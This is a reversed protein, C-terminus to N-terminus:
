RGRFASPLRGYRRKFARRFTQPNSYGCELAVANIAKGNDSRLLTVAKELRYEELYDAFTRGIRTLMFHYIYNEKMGLDVAARSLNLSPDPYNEEIYATITDATHKEVEKKSETKNGALTLFFLRAGDFSTFVAPVRECGRKISYRAATLHLRSLLRDTNEASLSQRVCNENRILDIIRETEKLDASTVASLLAKEMDPTFVPKGPRLATEDYDLYVTKTASYDILLAASNCEVVAKRLGEIDSKVGSSVVSFDFPLMKGLKERFIRINRELINECANWILVWSATVYDMGVHFNECFSEGAERETVIRFFDLTDPDSPAEDRIIIKLLKWKDGNKWPPGHILDLLTELEGDTQPISDIYRRFITEYRFPLTNEDKEGNKREDRLIESITLAVLEDSLGDGPNGVLDKLRNWHRRSKLFHIFAVLLSSSLIVLLIFSMIFAAPIIDAAMPNKVVACIYKLGTAPGTVVSVSYLRGGIRVNEHRGDHLSLLATYEETTKSTSSTIIGNTRDGILFWGDRNEFITRINKELFDAKLLLMIKGRNASANSIPSIQIYPVVKVSRNDVLATAAPFFGSSRSTLYFSRFQLGSLGEIRFIPYMREIDFFLNSSNMLYDSTRSYILIDAIIPNVNKGAPLKWLIDIMTQIDNSGPDIRGQHIFKSVEPDLALMQGLKVAQDINNDTITVMSSVLLHSRQARERGSQGFLWIQSVSLSLLCLAVFAAIVISSRTLPFRKRM